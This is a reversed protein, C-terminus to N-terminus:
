MADPADAETREARLAPQTDSGCLPRVEPPPARTAMTEEAGFTHWLPPEWPQVLAAYLEKLRRRRAGYSFKRRVRQYAHEVLGARLGPDRLMELLADTLAEVNSPPYLLAERGDRVLEAIGRVRAAVLPRRGAMYELLPLPLHTPDPLGSAAPAVAVDAAQILGRFTRPCPAPGVRVLTELGRAAIDAALAKQRSGCDEGVMLLSVPRLAAVNAVASLLTDIDRMASFPGAYLMRSGDVGPKPLWDFLDIDVGPSLVQCREDLGRLQLTECASHTSVLVLDAHEIAQRHPISFHGEGAEVASSPPTALEYILAFSRNAKRTAAAAGAWPDMAHVVEYDDAELQRAVARGYLERRREPDDPPTPVSFVRAQGVRSTPSLNDSRIGILDVDGDAADAASRMATSVPHATPTEAFGAVLLRRRAEGM